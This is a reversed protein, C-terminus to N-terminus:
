RGRRCSSWTASPEAWIREFTEEFLDYFDDAADDILDVMDGYFEIEEM